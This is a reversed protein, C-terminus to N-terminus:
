DDDNRPIRFTVPHKKRYAGYSLEYVILQVGLVTGGGVAAATKMEAGFLETVWQSTFYFMYYLSRIVRTSDFPNYFIVPIFYAGLMLILTIMVLIIDMDEYAANRKGDDRFVAALTGAMVLAAIVSCNLDSVLFQKVGQMSPPVFSAAVWFLGKGIILGLLNTGFLLIIRFACYKFQQTYDM